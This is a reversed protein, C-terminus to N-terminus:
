PANTLVFRYTGSDVQYMLRNGDNGAFTVYRSNEVKVTAPDSAPLYVVGTSTPPVTVELTVTSGQRRWSSRIKGRVSDYAAEAHELGAPFFPRIAIRRYGPELPQIGALDEYLWQVGSGYMHHSRTRSTREWYEGLATWGLSIWYGYSPYSTQTMITYAAELAGPVDEEAAQSLVPLIWRMGAIGVMAHGARTKMIDEILKEQLPRRKDEPVLNFALPLAAMSQFFPQSSDERYFGVSEDWWRANFDNKINEFLADYRYADNAYGLARATDAAIRTLYAYYATTSPHTVPLVRFRTPAGEPADAGTVPAWDGLGSTLTYKFSDGDKDTWRPIWDDLYKRTLPYSQELFRLDGYRLYSEWPIVFWFADWIPTAGCCDARKFVHGVHGYGRATPALLTVEGEATQADAMDQISKWFQREADFQLAAVPATLQADGTWGNKEYQPTDTIIGAVYNAALAAKMNKEIQGLLPHSSSFQGADPMATRVEQISVVEVNVGSPLPEPPVNQGGGMGGTGGAPASLSVPGSIQIYQFGKYTFQPTFVEPNAATGTGKAIYYDVQMEGPGASITGDAATKDSYAIQIATGAPAGHVRITAWGSRLQGTDWVLVGARPSYPKGPPWHAILRTPDGREAMLRGKPGEVVRVHLWSSDNFGPLDWGPIEKRADYTEGLYFGDYRTPGDISVKWSGDSTVVQESGDAYRIYLDLRFRPTQRWEATEYAWNVTVSEQDFRGSGLEAAVVNEAAGNQQQRILATVDETRYYVTDYYNTFVPDLYRDSTRKGNLRLNNWALGVSYARAAVVKGRRSVPEVAFSKRLMPVPRIERCSGAAGRGGKPRCFEKPEESRVPTGVAFGARLAPAIDLGSGPTAVETGAPVAASLPPGFRIGSGLVEVPAGQPVAAALPPQVTVTMGAGQGGRGPGAGQGGAGPGGGGFGQPAAPPTVSVITRSQNAIVIPVGAQLTSALAAAAGGGGGRGPGAAGSIRITAAGPEVAAALTWRTAATGVSRITARHTGVLIPQGPAFGEVSAVKVNDEGAAADARTTTRAAATGVRTVTVSQDGLTIRSGQAVAAVSEVKLNTAGVPAAEFLRSTYPLCCADHQMSQAPVPPTELRKPGSIWSGKWETANMYATEFWTPKSIYSTTEPEGAVWVRVSWHYRTRSGLPRGAYFAYPNSSRVVGSDWVLGPGQGSSAAAASTGVLVRFAAQQVGPRDADLRWSLRPKPNDIGLAEAAADTRLGNVRISSQVGATQAEASAAALLGLFVILPWARMFVELVARFAASRGTRRHRSIESHQAKRSPGFLANM